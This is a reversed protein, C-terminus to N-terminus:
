QTWKTNALLNEPSEQNKITPNSVESGADGAGIDNLNAIQFYPDKM